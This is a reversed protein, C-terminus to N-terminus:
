YFKRFKREKKKKSNNSDESAKANSLPNPANARHKKRSVVAAGPALSTTLKSTGRPADASAAPTTEEAGVIDSSKRKKGSSTTTLLASEEANLTTKSLELNKNFNLSSQSPTEFVLTVKNLYVLPVGPIFALARRLEQDQTAVFYRKKKVQTMAEQANNEMFRTLRESPVDGSIFDDDIIECYNSAFDKASQAKAGVLELEKLVSKLVFLKAEKCQLLKEIRDRVDLKYKIATFIFNGDLIINYPEIIGFVLQYFKLNKRVQKARLVRM